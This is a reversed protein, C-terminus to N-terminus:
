APLTRLHLRDPGWFGLQSPPITISSPAVLKLKTPVRPVGNEGWPSASPSMATSKTVTAHTVDGDGGGGGGEGEGGGGLGEGGGVGGGGEGGGGLGEGGGDGCGDGGGEGGDGGEGGGGLGEGGGGTGHM